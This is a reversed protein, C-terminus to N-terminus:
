EFYCIPRNYLEYAKTNLKWIFCPFIFSESSLFLVFKILETREEHLLASHMRHIYCSRPLFRVVTHKKELFSNKRTDQKKYQIRISTRDLKQRWIFRCIFMIHCTYITGCSTELASNPDVSFVAAAIVLYKTYTFM